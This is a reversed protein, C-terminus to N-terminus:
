CAMKKTKIIVRHGQSTEVVLTELQLSHGLSKATALEDFAASFTNM